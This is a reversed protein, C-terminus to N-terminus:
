SCADLRSRVTWDLLGSFQNLDIFSLQLLVMLLPGEQRQQLKKAVALQERDVVSTSLLYDELATQHTDVMYTSLANNM